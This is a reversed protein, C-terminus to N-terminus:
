PWTINSIFTRHEKELRAWVFDPPSSETNTQVAVLYSRGCAEHLQARTMVPARDIIFSNPSVERRKAAVLAERSM